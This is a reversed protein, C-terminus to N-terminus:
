GKQPDTVTIQLGSLKAVLAAELAAPDLAALAAQLQKVRDLTERIGMVQTYQTYTATWATNNPTKGDAEFYDPNNYPPAAAPIVDASWIRKLDSDELAGGGALLKTVVAAAVKDIDDQTLAVDDEQLAAWAALAARSSFNGLDRDTGRIGYQHFLWPSKIGPKGAAHNPDAIWLGDGAYSTKDVTTWRDVDCYLIGRHGVRLQKVSRIFNDKDANSALGSSTPEWDCALIDGPQSAAKTVFYEAQQQVSGPHLFHYFGVVCGAARAHAAQAAMLPNVYSTGETAKVFVFDLGSTDFTASQFSSVDIGQITM